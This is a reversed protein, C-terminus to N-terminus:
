SGRNAMALAAGLPARMSDREMFRRPSRERRAPMLSEWCTTSNRELSISEPRKEETTTSSCVGVGSRCFITTRRVAWHLSGLHIQGWAILPSNTDCDHSNPNIEHQEQAPAAPSM